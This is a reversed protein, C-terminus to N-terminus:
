SKVCQSYVIAVSLEELAKIANNLATNVMEYAEGKDSKRWTDSRLWYTEIRKSYEVDLKARLADVKQEMKDM